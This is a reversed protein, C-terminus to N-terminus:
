RTSKNSLLAFDSRLRAIEDEDTGHYYGRIRGEADVLILRDSHLIAGPVETAGLKFGNRSLRQAEGPKGCLFLWREPKAGAKEAYKELVSPTDHDPDVSFSILKVDTTDQLAKMSSTLKPCIGKCSTFFFDCVWPKGLLSRNSIMAGTHATMEFDPVWGFRDPQNQVAPRSPARFALVAWGTAAIVLGVGLLVFLARQLSSMSSM